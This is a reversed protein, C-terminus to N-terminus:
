PSEGTELTFDTTPYAVCTLTYGESMEEDGLMENTHHTVYDESHGGDAIHGSCSICQGQRCAYPLDWGEDEGAELLTENEKVEITQGEKTYEIEFVEAEDDPIASPDDDGEAAAGGEELEGEGEGAAVAGAAAGGGGISRNMPEPFDTKPVSAARRELVDESIDETPTWETGRTYHLSVAILTFLAGLGIGLADVM